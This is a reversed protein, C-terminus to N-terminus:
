TMHENKRIQFIVHHILIILRQSPGNEERRVYEKLVFESSIRIEASLLLTFKSKMSVSSELDNCYYYNLSFIM